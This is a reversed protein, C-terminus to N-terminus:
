RGTCEEVQRSWAIVILTVIRAAKSRGGPGVTTGSDLTVNVETTRLMAISLLMAMSRNPGHTAEALYDTIGTLDMPPRLPVQRLTHAYALPRYTGPLSVDGLRILIDLVPHRSRKPQRGRCHPCGIRTRRPRVSSIRPTSQESLQRKVHKIRLFELIERDRQQLLKVRLGPLRTPEPVRAMLLVPEIDNGLLLIAPYPSRDLALPNRTEARGLNM